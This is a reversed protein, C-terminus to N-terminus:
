KHQSIAQQWVSTHQFDFDAQHSGTGECMDSFIIEIMKLADIKKQDIKHKDVWGKLHEIRQAEISQSHLAKEFLNKYNRDKYFTAKALKILIDCENKDIIQHEVAKKLTARINAM